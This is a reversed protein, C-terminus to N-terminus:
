PSPVFRFTEMGTLTERTAGPLMVGFTTITSM